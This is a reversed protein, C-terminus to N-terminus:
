CYPGATASPKGEHLSSAISDIGGCKLAWTREGYKICGTVFMLAAAALLMGAPNGAAVFLYVVYAAGLVQAALTLL